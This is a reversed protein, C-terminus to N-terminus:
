RTAPRRSSAYRPRARGRPQLADTFTDVWLLVPTGAGRSSRRVVGPLDRTAFAPLPRRRDIGGLRKSTAAVARLAWCATPWGRRAPPWGPGAPCGVSRTTRRRGRAAGTASTSCRPSTPPWTSVPRATPRAARAPCACTWRRPSRRRARLGEGALRERAGAPRPVTRTDLGERRPHGPYSPCMVGGTATTDARCKGSASAATCRADVPRRRRARLRLRPRRAAAERGPRAPRPRRAGPDVIVGPNLLNQPDFVHKIATFTAIADDSYMYACCSAAPGGTATSAPCRAATRPSSDPRTSSSRASRPLATPWRSTSACM